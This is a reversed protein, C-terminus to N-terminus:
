KRIYPRNPFRRSANEEFPHSLLPLAEVPEARVSKYPGLPNTRPSLIQTARVHNHPVFPITRRSRALTPAYPRNPFRRNASEGHAHSFLPPAEVPEARVSKYPGLPNTLPSLIQTARVHNHPAFMITHPSLSQTPAYPRNAFRRSTNEGHAHSHLPPAEVPEARVSKYPAFPITHPSLSKHPHTPATRSGGAPTKRLHTPSFHYRKSLSLAFPNQIPRASKHPTFPITRPSRSQTPRVPNHPHTPATRSGGRRRRIRFVIGAVCPRRDAQATTRCHAPYASSNESREFHCFTGAFHGPAFIAARRLVMSARRLAKTVLRLKM